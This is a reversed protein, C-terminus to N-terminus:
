EGRKEFLYHSVIWEQGKAYGWLEACAMFFVRWYSWRWLAQDPGYVKKFIELIREKHLDTNKLWEESTKQYHWGDVQWHNIITLDKQFYFLLDDSPMIGGSFFYRTMWDNPDKNEFLYAVQIHTFIHVFLFGSPKLWTSVKRLLTEYNRMHEFMEVSIIRDFQEAAQFEKMNATIVRLNAYGKQRAQEEIHAKQTPSNSVATIDCDPYHEAIYLSMAGWGCGMDLVKLGNQMKARECTLKLMAEESKKLDVTGEPWYGCSYKLRPGLALQYFETPVEYHQENADVTNVAIPSNKLFVVLDSLTQQRKEVNDWRGADVLRQKLLRRIGVRILWDPLLNKRILHDVNV